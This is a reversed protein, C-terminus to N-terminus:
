LAVCVYMYTESQAFGDEPYLLLDSPVNGMDCNKDLTLFNIRESLNKGVCDVAKTM